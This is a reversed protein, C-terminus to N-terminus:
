GRKGKGEWQIKNGRLDRAKKMDKGQPGSHKVLSAQMLTHPSNPPCPHSVSVLADCLCPHSTSYGVTGQCGNSGM